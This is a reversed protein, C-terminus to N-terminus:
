IFTEAAFFNGSGDAFFRYPRESRTLSLSDEGEKISIKMFFVGFKMLIPARM